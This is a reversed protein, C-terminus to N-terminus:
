EGFRPQSVTGHVAVSVPAQTRTSDILDAYLKGSLVETAGDGVGSRRSVTAEGVVSLAGAKMRFDRLTIGDPGVQLAATALSFPTSGGSGDIGGSHTAAYGLDVGDLTGNRMSVAGLLILNGFAQAVTDGHGSFRGSVSATGELIPPIDASPLNGANRGITAGVDLMASVIGGSLNWVRHQRQVIGQASLSGRRDSILLSDLAVRGMAVTGQARFQDFPISPIFPLAANIGEIQFSIPAFGPAYSAPYRTPYRAALSGGPVPGPVSGPDPNRVASAAETPILTHFALNLSGRVSKQTLVVSDFSAGETRRRISMEWPATAGPVVGNLRLAACHLVGVHVPTAGALRPLLLLLFRSQSVNLSFPAIEVAGWDLRQHVLFRGIDHVHIQVAVGPLTVVNALTVADLQLHPSPSLRLRSSAITVPVGLSRTLRDSIAAASLGAHAAEYGRALGWGAVSVMGLVIIRFAWRGADNAYHRQRRSDAHSRGHLELMDLRDPVNVSTIAFDTSPPDSHRGSITTRPTGTTRDQTSAMRSSTPDYSRAFSSFFPDGAAFFVTASVVRWLFFGFTCVAYTVSYFIVGIGMRVGTFYGTQLLVHM